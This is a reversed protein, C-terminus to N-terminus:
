SAESIHQFLSVEARACTTCLVDQYPAKLRRGCEECSPIRPRFDQVNKAAALKETKRVRTVGGELLTCVEDLKLNLREAIEAVTERRVFFRKLVVRHLPSLGSENRDIFQRRFTEAFFDDLIAQKFFTGKRDEKM